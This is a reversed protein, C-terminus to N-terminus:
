RAFAAIVALAAVAGYVGFQALEKSSGVFSASGALFFLASLVFLVIWLPPRAMKIRMVFGGM